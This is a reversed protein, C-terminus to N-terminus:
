RSHCRGDDLKDANVLERRVEEPAIAARSANEARIFEADGSNLIKDLTKAEIGRPPTLRGSRTSPLYKDLIFEETGYKRLERDSVKGALAQLVVDNV